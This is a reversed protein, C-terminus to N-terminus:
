QRMGVVLEPLTTASRKGDVSRLKAIVIKAATGKIPGTSPGMTPPKIRIVMPQHQTWPTHLMKRPTTCIAKEESSGSVYPETSECFFAGLRQRAISTLLMDAIQFCLHVACPRGFGEALTELPGQTSRKRSGMISMEDVFRTM